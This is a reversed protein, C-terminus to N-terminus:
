MGSVRYWAGSVRGDEDFFVVLIEDKLDDEANDRILWALEEPYDWMQPVGEMVAQAENRYMGNKIGCLTDATDDPRLDIFTVVGGNGRLALAASTYSEAYEEGAEFSLGGIQEAAGAIAQGFYGSLERGSSPAAETAQPTRAPETAEAGAELADQSLDPLAVTEALGAAMLLLALAMLLMRKM